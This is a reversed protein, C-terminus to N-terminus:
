SAFLSRWTTVVLAHTVMSARISRSRLFSIGYFLGALGALVAFKWNPFYRFPLHVTGFLAATVVLGAAESHLGRSVVQQLFGRFFFEEALAVVWLIGVFTAPVFLAFKWWVLAVPHFHAFRLLYIALGGVPLFLLFQEIGIRWESSNPLFGFRVNEIRRLSLVAMVGLRVWMLRGLIELQLHPTPRAYIEPFVKSLYVGAMLVLFLLDAGPSPRMVAYWFAAMGTLVLLLLFSSIRFSGLRLSEILYPAVAGATLLAARFPKSGLRDFQKRVKDFGPMLYLGIEMLFAPLLALLLGRSINQQQSYVYAAISAATWVLMLTILFQRMPKM